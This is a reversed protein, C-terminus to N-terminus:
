VARISMLDPQVSALGDDVDTMGAPKRGDSRVLPSAHPDHLLNVRRREVATIGPAAVVMPLALKRLGRPWPDGIQPLFLERVKDPGAINDNFQTDPRPPIEQLEHTSTTDADVHGVEEGLIQAPFADLEHFIDLLQLITHRIHDDAM